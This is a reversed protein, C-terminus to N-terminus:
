VSFREITKHKYKRDKTFLNTVLADSHKNFLMDHGVCLGLSINLDTEKENLLKAQGLPNCSVGKANEAFETAPIQGTKCDITHVEFGNHELEDVISATEKKFIICNAIGISKMERSKAFDIVEKLRDSKPCKAHEASSMVDRESDKYLSLNGM